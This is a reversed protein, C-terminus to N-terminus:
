STSRTPEGGHEAPHHQPRRAPRASASRRSGTRTSTTWAHDPTRRRAGGARGLAGLQHRVPRRLDAQNDTYGQVAANNTNTQLVSAITDVVKDGTTGLSASDNAYFVQDSLIQVVLESTTPTPSNQSISVDGALGAARWRRQQARDPHHEAAPQGATPPSRRAPPRPSGPRPRRTRARSSPISARCRARLPRGPQQAAAPRHREQGGHYARLVHRAARQGARHVEEHQDHELRLARRLAGPAAHDHRRLDPALAGHRGRGGRTGRPARAPGDPRRKRAFM